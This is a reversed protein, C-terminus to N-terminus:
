AAPQWDVLRWGQGPGLWRLRFVVAEDARATARGTGDEGVLRYASREVRSRVRVERAGDGGLVRASRVTFHLGEYRVRMRAAQQLDTRDRSFAVSGAAVARSLLPVSGGRWARARADVLQQLVQVPSRRVAEQSRLGAAAPTPSRTPRASGDGRSPESAPPTSRASSSRAPAPHSARSRQPARVSPVEAHAARGQGAGPHLRDYAVRAGAGLGGCVVAVAVVAAALQAPRTRWWPSRVRSCRPSEEAARRRLRHTLGAAPDAGVALTVPEAAAAEFLERAAEGASPRDAARSSLCANVAAALRPPLCPALEGLPRRLPAPEPPSGTLCCWAVAGLGYVDAAPQPRQGDLVEPATFGGTGWVEPRADGAIRSVGLDGLLPKGDAEFLVNGASVDGHVVGRAHLDGLTRALPSLVTVVEGPTLHGRGSIVAALTGGEALDTVLALRGDELHRTELLRVVHEHAVRELLAAERLAAELGHVPDVVKVAVRHGDGAVAEWVQGSGGRGLCRGTVYGPLQPTPM